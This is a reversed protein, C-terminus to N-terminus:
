KAYEFVQGSSLFASSSAQSVYPVSMVNLEILGFDLSNAIELDLSTLEDALVNDREVAKQVVYFLIDSQRITVAASSVREKRETLWASLRQLLAEFQQGFRYENDTAQCARIAQQVTLCFRDKDEPVVVVQSPKAADLLIISSRSATTSM